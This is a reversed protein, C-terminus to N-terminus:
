GALLTENNGSEDAALYQHVNRRALALITAQPNVSPATCMTSCDNVFLNNQEFVRGYSDVVTLDRNEGMPCGSSLHVATLQTERRPLLAPLENLSADSDVVFRSDAISPYLCEAGAHLLLECLRHLGHRLRALDGDTLRYPLLPERVFPMPRIRGTGQPALMVYYNAYRKWERKFQQHNIDHPLLNMALYAPSSVSCGLTLDPSDEKIQLSPIGMGHYNVEESFRATVKIMPQCQFHQGANQSIRSRLLLLPSQVAGACLFVTKCEIVHRRSLRQVNSRRLRLVRSEPAIQCGAALAEPILTKSLTMAEGSEHDFCRPVPLIRWNLREAGQRLRAAVPQENSDHEVRLTQSIWQQHSALEAETLDRVDFRDVWHRLISEPLTVLEGNNVESGGGVASGMAYVIRPSGLTFTLGRNWYKSRLENLSFEPRDIPTHFRGAELMLVNRGACALERATTAGGPGSGIVITDARDPLETLIGDKTDNM